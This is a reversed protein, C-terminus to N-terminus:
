GSESNNDSIEEPDYKEVRPGNVRTELLNGQLDTLQVSGNDFIQQVKYPGMWRTHLKGTFEKFVINM